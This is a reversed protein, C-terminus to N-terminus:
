VDQDTGGPASELGEHEERRQRGFLAYPELTIRGLKGGRYEDLVVAAGRDLDPLGGRLLFGRGLCAQELLSDGAAQPDRIRYRESLRDPCITKLDELLSCALAYTDVVQDRIAATYALRRAAAPDDLRPWLLGPSDMLELYPNLRIWHNTRTVGPRDSVQTVRGGALRNILTSKGVNPVGVVMVRVTKHIGRNESREVTERSAEGIARLLQASQRNVDLALCNEGERRLGERWLRNEEADSLDAKGLVLIRKKRATLKKLVPNRSSAPIRADLLEIVVDSRRLQEELDRKAKAMHGPYWNITM